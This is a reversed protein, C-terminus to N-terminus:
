KATTAVFDLCASFNYIMPVRVSWTATVVADGGEKTIELDDGKVSQAGEISNKRDFALRIDRVTGKTDGQAEMSSLIKKVSFFEIYSPLLKAAFLGIFALVIMGGLAGMLTIGQQKRM